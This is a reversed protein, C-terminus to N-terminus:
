GELSDEDQFLDPGELKPRQSGTSQTRPVRSIHEVPDFGTIIDWPTSEVGPSRYISTKPSNLGKPSPQTPRGPTLTRPFPSFSPVPASSNEWPMRINDEPRPSAQPEFLSRPVESPILISGSASPSPSFSAACHLSRAERISRVPPAPSVARKEPSGLYALPSSTRSSTDRSFWHRSPDSRMAIDGCSSESGSWTGDGRPSDSHERINVQRSSSSAQSAICERSHANLSRINGFYTADAPPIPPLNLIDGIENWPDNRTLLDPIIDVNSSSALLTPVRHALGSNPLHRAPSAFGLDPIIHCSSGSRSPSGGGSSGGVASPLQISDFDLLMTEAGHSTQCFPLLSGYTTTSTLPSSPPLPSSPFELPYFSPALPGAPYLSGESSGAPGEDQGLQPTSISHASSQSIWPELYEADSTPGACMLVTEGVHAGQSPSSEGRLSTLRPIGTRSMQSDESGQVDHGIRADSPQGGSLESMLSMFSQNRLRPPDPPGPESDLRSTSLALISQRPSTSYNCLGVTRSFELIRNMEARLSADSDLVNTVRSNPTSIDSSTRSPGAPSSHDSASAGAAGTQHAHLSMAPPRSIVRQAHELLISSMGASTEEEQTHTGNALGHSLIGLRRRGFHDKQVRRTSNRFRTRAVNRFVM